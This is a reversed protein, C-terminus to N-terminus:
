TSLVPMCRFGGCGLPRAPGFETEPIRCRAHCPANKEKQPEQRRRTCLNRRPWERLRVLREISRGVAGTTVLKPSLCRELTQVAVGFDGGPEIGALSQMRSVVNRGAGAPLAGAAMGFVITFVKRQDLPVCFSEIVFFSSVRKLALVCPQGAITAVRRRSNHRRLPRRDLDFVQAAGIQAQGRGAGSTVLIRVVSPESLGALLTMVDFLPLRDADRLEIVRLRAIRQGSQVRLNLAGLAMSRPGVVLRAIRANGEVLTRVAMLIRMMSTKRLTALGAVGGHAPLLNREARHILTEVVRLRLIPQFSLMEAHVACPAVGVAIEFLRQGKGRAHIAVFRIRMIPLERLPRIVPLAGRAVLHAPPLRRGEGHGFVSRTSIGQFPPVRVHLAGLAMNGLALVRQELHLEITARIAVAVTVGSLKGCRRVEVSTVAAVTQFAVLGGSKGKRAVFFRLENKGASVKGHGAGVAVFFRRLEPGLRRNDVVPLAQTARTAVRIRMLPLELFAQLLNSRVLDNCSALRAVRRLRPLVQGPEIMRFGWEREHSRVPRGAAGAAVLRRVQFGLQDIHVELCRWRLAFIAVFIHVRFLKGFRADRSTSFTVVAHFPLRRQEIMILPGLERQAASMLVYVARLTVLRGPENRTLGHEEVLRCGFLTRRAVASGVRRGTHFLM